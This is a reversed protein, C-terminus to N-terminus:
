ILDENESRKAVEESLVSSPLVSDTGGARMRYLVMSHSRAAVRGHSSADPVFNPSVGFPVCLWWQLRFIQLPKRPGWLKLCAQGRFLVRETSCVPHGQLQLGSHVFSIGNCAMFVLNQVPVAADAECGCAGSPARCKDMSGAACWIDSIIAWRRALLGAWVHFM